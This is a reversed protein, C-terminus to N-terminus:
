NNPTYYEVTIVVDEIEAYSSDVLIRHGNQNDYLFPISYPQSGLETVLVRITDPIASSYELTVEIQPTLVQQSELHDFIDSFGPNYDTSRIPLAVGDNALVLEQVGYAFEKSPQNPHGSHVSSDFIGNLSLYDGKFNELVALVGNHTINKCYKDAGIQEYYDLTDPEGVPPVFSLQQAYEPYRACVDAEDTIFIVILSADPRFFGANQNEVLMDGQIANMLSIFNMEERQTKYSTTNELNKEHVEKRLSFKSHLHSRIDELSFEDTSLVAPENQSTVFLRGSWYHDAMATISSIRLDASMDLNSLFNDMATIIVNDMLDDISGSPDIVFLLDTKADVTNDLSFSQSHKTYQTPDLYRPDVEYPPDNYGLDVEYPTGNQGPDPNYPPHSQPTYGTSGYPSTSLRASKCGITIAMCFALFWFHIVYRNMEGRKREYFYLHLKYVM